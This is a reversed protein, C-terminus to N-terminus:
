YLQCDTVCAQTSVALQASGFTHVQSVDVATATGGEAPTGQLASGDAKHARRLLLREQVKDKELAAEYDEACSLLRVEARVGRSAADM